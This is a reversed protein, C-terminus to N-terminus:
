RSGGSTYNVTDRVRGRKHAVVASIVEDLSTRPRFGILERARTTDPVRRPVEEFGSRYAQEYPVHVVPSDSGTIRLVRDAVERICVEESGGLNFAQGYARENMVLAVLAPVVDGVACFCRRQAGDGHITLPEGALAQQVLTPIVMGYRSTQRPGVVNFPRVMVARLGHQLWYCYAMLEDLGKAASYSWRSKLPSGLVRDDDENLLVKSNKGYVESTSVFLLRTGHRRAAELVTQTGVLNKRLSELPQNVIAHVGVAGALHFVTDCGSTAEEVATEDLISGRVTTVADAVPALNAGSGSSFDDLIVAEHGLALLHDVLHSGIFGAGGTVLTRM